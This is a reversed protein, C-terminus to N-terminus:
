NLPNPRSLTALNAAVPEVPLDCLNAVHLIRVNGGRPACLDPDSESGFLVLTPAGAAAILHMPGTDNGIAAFAARGLALIDLFETQGVLSRTGPAARLISQVIESEAPGGLVVPNQESAVLQQAIAAYRDAPWRKGPRHLSGGPVILTFKAPLDFQALRASAQSAFLALDPAAAQYKIGAARLQEAQRELTHM